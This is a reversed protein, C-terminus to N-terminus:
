ASTKRKLHICCIDKKFLSTENFIYIYQEIYNNNISAFTNNQLYFNFQM